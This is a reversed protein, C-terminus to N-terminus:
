RVDTGARSSLRTHGTARDLAIASVLAVLFAPVGTIIPWAVVSLLILKPRSPEGWHARVPGLVAVGLAGVAVAMAVRAAVNARPLRRNREIIFHIAFIAVSLLWATLRWTRASVTGSLAAAGVSAAVYAAGALLISGIRPRPASPQM